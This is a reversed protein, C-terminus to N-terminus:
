TTKGMRGNAPSMARAFRPPDIQAQSGLLGAISPTTPRRAGIPESVHSWIGGQKTKWLKLAQSSPPEIWQSTMLYPLAGSKGSTSPLGVGGLEAMPMGTRHDM